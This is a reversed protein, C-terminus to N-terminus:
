ASADPHAPPLLIQFGLRALVALLAQQQHPALPAIPHGFVLLRLHPRQHPANLGYLAAFTAAVTLYLPLFATPPPPSDAFPDVVTVSGDTRHIAIAFHFYHRYDLVRERTLRQAETQPPHAILQAFHELTQQHKSEWSQQAALSAEPSRVRGPPEAPYDIVMQYFPLLSAHPQIAFTYREGDWELRSLVANFREFAHWTTTFREHLPAVVAERIGALTRQWARDRAQRARPLHEALLRQAEAAFREDLPDLPAAASPPPQRFRAQYTAMAALLQQLAEAAREQVACVTRELQRISPELWVAEDEQPPQGASFPLFDALQHHAASVAAPFRAERAQLEEEDEVVQAELRPLAARWQELRTHCRALHATLQELHDDLQALERHLQEIRQVGEQSAQAQLAQHQAMLTAIREQLATPDLPSELRQRLAALPRVRQLHPLLGQLQQLHHTAQPLAQSLEHWEQELARQRAQRGRTGIYWPRAATLPLVRLSWAAYYELTPTIARRYQTLTEVSQCAVVDGLLAHLYSQLALFETKVQHALSNPLILQRQHLTAAIDLVGVDTLQENVYARQLVQRALAVHEPPVLITFRQPGLLAEVADQWQADPIELVECLLPPREGLLHTLLTCIREVAEPYDALGMRVLTLKQEVLKARSRLHQLQDRYWWMLEQVRVLAAELIPIVRELQRALHRPPPTDPQCSAITYLLARLTRYAEADLLPSSEPNPQKKGAVITAPLTAELLPHLITAEQRLDHLLTLWRSHILMADSTTQKIEQQLAESRQYTDTQRWTIEAEVLQARQKQLTARYTAREAEAQAIASQLQAIAQQAAALRRRAVTSRLAAMLVLQEEWKRQSARWTAQQEVIQQLAALQEELAHVEERLQAYPQVLRQLTEGDLPLEELMWQTVFTHLETPPAGRLLRKLLRAFRRAPVGLREALHAQYSTLEEDGYCGPRGELIARVEAISRAGEGEAGRFWRPDLAEPITFFYHQAAMGGVGVTVYNARPADSFELAAYRPQPGVTAPLLTREGVLLLELVELISEWVGAEPVLVSRRDVEVLHEGCGNWNYLFVRTLSLM